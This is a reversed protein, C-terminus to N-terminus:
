SKKYTIHWQLFYSPLVPLILLALAIFGFIIGQAFGSEVMKMDYSHGTCDSLIRVYFLWAPAQPLAKIDFAYTVIIIFVICNILGNFINLFYPIIFWNSFVITTNYYVGVISNPNLIQLANSLVILYFLLSYLKWFLKM